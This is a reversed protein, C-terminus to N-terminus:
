RAEAIKISNVSAVLKGCHEPVKDRRSLVTLTHEQAILRACLSQGIFGTGGTLLIQM